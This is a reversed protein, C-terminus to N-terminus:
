VVPAPVLTTGSNSGGVSRSHSKDLYKENSLFKKGMLIKLM